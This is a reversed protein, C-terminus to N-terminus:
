KIQCQILDSVSTVKFDIHTAHLGDALNLSRLVMSFVDILTNLEMIKISFHKQIDNINTYNKIHCNLIMITNSLTVMTKTLTVMTKM